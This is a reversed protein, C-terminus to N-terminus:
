KKLLVWALGLLVAWKIWPYGTQIVVEDSSMGTEPPANDDDM